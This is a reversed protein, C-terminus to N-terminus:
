GAPPLTSPMEWYDPISLVLFGLPGGLPDTTVRRIWDTDLGDLVEYIARRVNQNLTKMVEDNLGDVQVHLDELGNRVNMAILCALHDRNGLDFAALDV